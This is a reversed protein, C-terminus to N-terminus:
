NLKLKALVDQVLLVQQGKVFLVDDVYERYDLV